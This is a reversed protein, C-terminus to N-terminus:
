TARNKGRGRTRTPLTTAERKPRANGVLFSKNERAREILHANLKESSSGDARGTIEKPVNAQFTHGAWKVTVPDLPGPVYTITETVPEILLEADDTPKPARAM